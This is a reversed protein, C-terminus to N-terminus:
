GGQMAVIIPTRDGVWAGETNFSFYEEAEERTMGQGVLIGICKERDYVVFPGRYQQSGLGIIADDFGDFFLAEDDGIERLRQEVQERTTM